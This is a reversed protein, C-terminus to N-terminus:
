LYHENPLKDSATVKSSFRRQSGECAQPSLSSGTGRGLSRKLFVPFRNLRHQNQPQSNDQPFVPSLRAPQLRPLVPRELYGADALSGEVYTEVISVSVLTM